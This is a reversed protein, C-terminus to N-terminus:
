DVSFLTRNGGRDERKAINWFRLGLEHKSAYILRYLPRGSRRIQLSDTHAYGIQGLRGIYADVLFARVHAADHNLLQAYPTRWDFDTGLVLDLNSTEQAYYTDINRLAEM